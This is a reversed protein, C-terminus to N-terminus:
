AYGNMIALAEELQALSRDIDEDNDGTMTHFFVLADLVTNFDQESLEVM